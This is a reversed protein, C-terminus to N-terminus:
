RSKARSLMLPPLVEDDEDDATLFTEEADITNQLMFRHDEPTGNERREAIMKEVKEMNIIDMISNGSSLSIAIASLLGVLLSGNWVTSPRM